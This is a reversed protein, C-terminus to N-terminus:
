LRLANALAKNVPFGQEAFRFAPQVLDRFTRTGYRDLALQLGALTGPVGVALWGHINTRGKVAGNELPYMDSRAAAPASTNFDICTVKPKGALALTMHGGYGGIGCRGPTTVCSTLAAAVAADIANGGEAFVQAGIKAGTEEGIIIGDDFPRGGREPEVVALISSNTFGTVLAACGTRKLM